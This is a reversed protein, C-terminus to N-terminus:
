AIPLLFGFTDFRPFSSTIEGGLNEIFFHHRQDLNRVQAILSIKGSPAPAIGLEQSREPNQFVLELRPDVLHINDRPITSEEGVTEVFPSFIVSLLIAVVLYKPHRTM